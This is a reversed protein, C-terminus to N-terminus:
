WKHKKLYVLLGAAAVMLSFLLPIAWSPFEPVTPTPTPSSTSSAPITVTQTNSWGSTVGRFEYGSAFQPSIRYIGGIAAEVQFNAQGSSIGNWFPFGDELSYSVVTYDSTSKLLFNNNPSNVDTWNESFHGKERVFYYFYNPYNVNYSNFPQNNISLEITRNEVHYGHNTINQGTYPDISTTTPIDYSSDVFKVKFEPVSPTPIPAPSATPSYTPNTSNQAYTPKIMMLSLCSIVMILIFFVAFGKSKTGM